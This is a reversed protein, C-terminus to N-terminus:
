LAGGEGYARHDFGAHAGSQAGPGSSRDNGPKLWSAKFGGWGNAAALHVAEATTIGAKEAERKVQQWATETLPANKARRVKLWDEAHQREVGDAILLDPSYASDRKNSKARPQKKVTLTAGTSGTEACGHSGDRADMRPTANTRPTADVSPTEALRGVNIGYKRTTGPAGGFDNGVVSMWNAKVLKHLVRRAQSESSRIRKAVTAISPFLNMGADDCWDAMALMVLLESGAGPFNRWVMDMVKISM